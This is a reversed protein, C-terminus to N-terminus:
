TGCSKEGSRASAAAIADWARHAFMFKSLSARGIVLSMLLSIVSDDYFRGIHTEDCAFEVVCSQTVFISMHGCITSM